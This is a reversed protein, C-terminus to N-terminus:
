ASDADAHGRARRARIRRALAFPRASGLTLATRLGPDEIAGIQRALRRAEFFDSDLVLAELLLSRIQRIRQESREGLSSAFEPNQSLVRESSTLLARLIAARNASKRGAHEFVRVTPVDLYAGTCRIALRQHFDSDENHRLDEALEGVRELVRRRFMLSGNRLNTCEFHDAALREPDGAAVPRNLTERGIADVEIAPSYVFDAGTEELRQVMAAIADRTWEDDSDLFAIADGSAVRLGHNRAAACGGNDKRFYRILFPFTAAIDHVVRDTGDSSGDDVVVVEIDRHTQQAISALARPVLPARNYTPLIASVRM